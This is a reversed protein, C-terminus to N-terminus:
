KNKIRYHSDFINAKLLDLVTKQNTLRTEIRIM